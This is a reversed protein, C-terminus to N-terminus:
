GLGGSSGLDVKPALPIDVPDIFDQGLQQKRSRQIASKYGERQLRSLEMAVEYALDFM